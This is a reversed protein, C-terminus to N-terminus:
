KEFWFISTTFHIRCTDCKGEASSKMGMSKKVEKEAGCKPCKALLKVM